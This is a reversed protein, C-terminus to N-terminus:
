QKSYFVKTIIDWNNEFKYLTIFNTYVHATGNYIEVTACANRGDIKVSTLEYSTTEDLFSEKAYEALLNETNYIEVNGHDYIIVNETPLWKCESGGEIGDVYISNAFSELITKQVEKHEESKIDLATLQVSCVLLIIVILSSNRM